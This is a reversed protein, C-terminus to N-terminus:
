RDGNLMAWAILDCTAEPDLPKTLVDVAGETRAEEVMSSHATMFIVFVTPCISRIRRYAELGDIGSMKLDMLIGEPACQRVREVAQEGSYAVDVEYGKARLIRRLGRAMDPEDDVVLVRHTATATMM